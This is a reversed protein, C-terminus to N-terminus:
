VRECGSRRRLCDSPAPTRVRRPRWRACAKWAVRVRLPQATPWPESGLARAIQLAAAASAQAQDFVAFHSDGEGRAKLLVGGYGSVAAEVIADYRAMAMRASMADADWMGTSGAVDSLLFTVTGSLREAASSIAM